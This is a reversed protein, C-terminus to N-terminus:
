RLQFSDGLLPSQVRDLAAVLLPAQAAKAANGATESSALNSDNPSRWRNTQATDPEV